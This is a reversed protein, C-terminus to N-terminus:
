LSGGPFVDKLASITVDRPAVIVVRDEPLLCDDGSPIILQRNRAIAAVLTDKRKRTQLARFPIDCYSAGEPVIFEMAEVKGDMFRSLALMSQGSRSGMARVYRVIENATLLKPSVITDIGANSYVELHDTRDIKTVTKPVKLYNAFM